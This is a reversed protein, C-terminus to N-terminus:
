SDQKRGRSHRTLSYAKRPFIAIPVAVGLALLFIISLALFSNDMLLYLYKDHQEQANITQLYMIISFIANYAIKGPVMPLLAPIAVVTIPYFTRIGSLLAGFGILLSAALSASAIDAGLYKMLLMRFAFGAAALIAIYPFAKAPPNSIIGFGMGAIAAFFAGHLITLIM